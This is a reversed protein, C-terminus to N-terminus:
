PLNCDQLANDSNSPVLAERTYLSTTDALVGSPNNRANIQYAFGTVVGSHVSREVCSLARRPYGLPMEEPPM